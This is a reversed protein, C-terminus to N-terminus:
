QMSEKRGRKRSAVRSKLLASLVRSLREIEPMLAHGQATALRWDRWLGKGLRVLSLGKSRAYPEALWRALISVGMEARAMEIIAETLQVRRLQSPYAKAPVFFEDIVGLRGNPMDHLILTESSL